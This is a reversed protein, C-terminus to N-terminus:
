RSAPAEGEEIVPATGAPAIAALAAARNGSGEESIRWASLPHLEWGSFNHFREREHGPDWYVFGQVDIKTGPPPLVPPAVNARSWTADIEAHIAKMYVNKIDPRAPDALTGTYDGDSLVREWDPGVVLGNIQVFTSENGLSCPPDLLHRQANGRLHPQFAGGSELAGRYPGAKAGLLTPLTTLTATCSTHPSWSSLPPAPEFHAVVRRARTLRLACAGAGFCGGSWGSFTAGKLGSVRIRVRTGQRFREVCRASCSAVGPSIRVSGLGAPSVAVTLRRKPHKALTAGAAVLAALALATFVTWLPRSHAQAVHRLL